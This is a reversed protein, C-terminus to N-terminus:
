PTGEQCGPITTLRARLDARERPPTAPEALAARAVACRVADPAADPRARLLAARARLRPDRTLGEARAALAAGEAPPSLEGLCLLALPENASPMAGMARARAFSDAACPLTGVRAPCAAGPARAALAVAACAEARRLHLRACAPHTADCPAVAEAAIAEPEAGQWRALQAVRPDILAAAPACSTTGLASALLALPVAGCSTGRRRPTRVASAPAVANGLARRTGRAALPAAAPVDGDPRLPARTHGAPADAAKGIPRHASRAAGTPAAPADDAPGSAARAAHTPAAGVDCRRRGGRAAVAEAVKGLIGALAVAVARTAAARTAGQVEAPNGLARLEAREERLTAGGPALGTM